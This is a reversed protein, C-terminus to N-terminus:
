PVALRVDKLAENFEMVRTRFLQRGELHWTTQRTFWFGDATREREIIARCAKVAGVLGGVFNVPSTLHVELRLTEHEAADLWASGAIRALFRERAGAGSKAGAAPHFDLRWAERGAVIERGALDFRFRGLLERDVTFDDREYARDKDAVKDAPRQGDATVALRKAAPRAPSHESHKAERKKLDGSGDRVELVRDKAYAYRAKFAAEREREGKAREILKELLQEASPADAPPEASVPRGILCLGAM